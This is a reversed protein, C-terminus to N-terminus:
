RRQWEKKEVLLAAPALGNEWSFAAYLEILKTVIEDPTASITANTGMMVKLYVNWNNSRPIECLLSFIHKENSMM